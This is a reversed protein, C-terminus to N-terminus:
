FDSIIFWRARLARRATLRVDPDACLLEDLLELVDHTVDERGGWAVPKRAHSMMLTPLGSERLIKLAQQSPDQANLPFEGFTCVYITVGASWMDISPRISGWTSGVIVEPASYQVTGRRLVDYANTNASTGFDCLKAREIGSGDGPGFLLINEPKVDCHVVGHMHIHDLARFLDRAVARCQTSGGRIGEWKLVEEMLDSRAMEFLLAQSDGSVSVEEAVLRVICEHKLRRVYAAERRLLLSARRRSETNRTFSKCVARERTQRHCAVLVCGFSGIGVRQRTVEWDSNRLAVAAHMWQVDPEPLTLPLSAARQMQQQKKRAGPTCVEFSVRAGM